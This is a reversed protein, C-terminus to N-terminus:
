GNWGGKILKCPNSTYYEFRRAYHDLLEAREEAYDDKGDIFYEPKRKIEAEVFQDAFMPYKREIRSRLLRNRNKIKREITWEKQPASLATVSIGYGDGLKTLGKLENPTNPAGQGPKTPIFIEAIVRPRGDPPDTYNNFWSLRFLFGVVTM